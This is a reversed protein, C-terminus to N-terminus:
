RPSGVARAAALVDGITADVDVLDRLNYAELRYWHGRKEFRMEVDYSEHMTGNIAFAHHTVTLSAPKDNCDCEVRDPFLNRDAWVYRSCPQGIEDEPGRWGREILTKLVSSMTAM